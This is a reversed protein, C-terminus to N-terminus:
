YDRFLAMWRDIRRRQLLKASPPKFHLVQQRIGSAGLSLETDVHDVLPYHCNISRAMPYLEGVAAGNPISLQQQRCSSPRRRERRVYRTAVEVPDHGQM